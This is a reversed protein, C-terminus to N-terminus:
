ESDVGENTSGIASEKWWYGNEPVIDFSITASAYAGRFIHHYDRDSYYSPSTEWEVEADRMIGKFVIQQGHWNIRIYTPKDTDLVAFDYFMTGCYPCQASDIPAGCNPCNHRTM